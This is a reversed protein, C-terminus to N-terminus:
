SKRDLRTSFRHGQDLLRQRITHTDYFEGNVVAHISQDENALPQHGGPLDIIGLRRHGLAVLRNDALWIGQDDPGRSQLAATAAALQELPIPLDSSLIAVIGCM